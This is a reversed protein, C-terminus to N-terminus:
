QDTWTQKREMLLYFDYFTVNIKVNENIKYHYIYKKTFM